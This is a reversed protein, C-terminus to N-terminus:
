PHTQMTLKTDCLAPVPSDSRSPLEPSAAREEGIIIITKWIIEKPHQGLSKRLGKIQVVLLLPNMRHHTEM